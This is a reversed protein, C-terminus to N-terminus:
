TQLPPPKLLRNNADRVEINKKLLIKQVLKSKLTERDDIFTSSIEGTKKYVNITLPFRM